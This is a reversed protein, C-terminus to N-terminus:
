SGIELRRQRLIQDIRNQIATLRPDDPSLRLCADLHERAKKVDFLYEAYVVALNYHSQFDKPDYFLAWEWERAAKARPRGRAGGDM